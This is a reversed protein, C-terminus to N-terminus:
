NGQLAKNIEQLNKIFDDCYGDNSCVTGAIECYHETFRVNDTEPSYTFVVIGTQKFDNNKLKIQDCTVIIAGDNDFRAITYDCIGWPYKASVVYKNIIQQMITM